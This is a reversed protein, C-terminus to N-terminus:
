GIPNDPPLIKYNSLFPSNMPAPTFQISTTPQSCHCSAYILLAVLIIFVFVGGLVFVPNWGTSVFDWIDEILDDIITGTDSTNSTNGVNDVVVKPPSINSISIGSANLSVELVGSTISTSVNTAFSAEAVVATVVNVSSQLLRRSMLETAIDVVSVARADLSLASAVGDIYVDQIRLFEATTLPITATFTITAM